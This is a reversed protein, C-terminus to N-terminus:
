APPDLPEGTELLTKLGSIVHMWGAGSVNNATTPSQELQDHTLTLLCTGNDQARDGLHGPQAAGAASERTTCRPGPTCWGSPRTASSCRATTGSTRATRHAHVALSRGAPARQHGPTGHFYRAIFAPDTIGQWVQEPTARIFIRYIQTGTCARGSAM